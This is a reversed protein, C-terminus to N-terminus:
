GSVRAAVRDLAASIMQAYDGPKLRTLHERALALYARADLYNGLRYHVDALNLYLSPYFDAVSGVMGAQELSTDSVSRAADLATLDWNLEDAPSDQVDAMSHALACRQLADGDDGLERWVTAFLERAQQRQDSHALEIGRGIRGMIDDKTELVHNGEWRKGV